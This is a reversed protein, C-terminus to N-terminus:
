EQPCAHRVFRVSLDPTGPEDAAPGTRGYEDLVVNGRPHPNADLPVSGNNSTKAWRVAQGCTKCRATTM